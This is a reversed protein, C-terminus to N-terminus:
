IYEGAVTTIIAGFYKYISKCLVLMIVCAIAEYLNSLPLRWLSNRRNVTKNLRQSSLLVVNGAKVDGSSSVLLSANYGPYIYVYM